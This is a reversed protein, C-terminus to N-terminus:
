RAAFEAFKKEADQKMGSKSPVLIRGALARAIYASQAGAVTFVANMKLLGVFALTSDSIWFIQKWLDCVQRSDESLQVKPLFPYEYVYRTCLIIIDIDPEDQDRDATFSVIKTKPNLSTVTSVNRQNESSLKQLDQNISVIIKCKVLSGLQETISWYSPGGGIMLVKQLMDVVDM